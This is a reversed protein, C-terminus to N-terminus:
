PIIESMTEHKKTNGAEFNFLLKIDKKSNHVFPLMKSM